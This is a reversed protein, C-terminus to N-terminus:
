RTSSSCRACPPAAPYERELGSAVLDDGDGVSSGNSSGNSSTSRSRALKSCSFVTALVTALTMILMGTGAVLARGDEGPREPPLFVYAAAQLHM